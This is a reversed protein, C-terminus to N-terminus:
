QKEYKLANSCLVQEVLNNHFIMVARDGIDARKKYHYDVAITRLTIQQPASSFFESFKRRLLCFALSKQKGNQLIFHSKCDLCCYIYELFITKFRDSSRLNKGIRVLICCWSGTKM